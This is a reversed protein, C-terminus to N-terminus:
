PEARRANELYTAAARLRMPDDQMMGLASNCARCLLGRVCRGCTAVGACCAHDHDVQLNGCDSGGCIACVNAQERALEVYADETLGYRAALAYGRGSKGMGAAARSALPGGIKGTKWVRQYHMQCYGRAYHQLECGEVTCLRVKTHRGHGRQSPTPAGLVGTNRLRCYHMFCYGGARHQRVCGEVSCMRIVQQQM